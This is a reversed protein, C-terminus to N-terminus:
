NKWNGVTIVEPVGNTKRLVIEVWLDFSDPNHMANAGRLYHWRNPQGNPGDVPVVLSLHGAVTAYQDPKLGTLIRYVKSDDPDGEKEVANVLGARHEPGPFVDDGGYATWVENSTINGFPTIYTPDAVNGRDRISGALEYLLSNPGPNGAADKPLPNDPPYVGVKSKYSEIMSILKALEVRARKQKKDKGAVGALGVVLGAVVAIIAIVVLLEILTFANQQARPTKM